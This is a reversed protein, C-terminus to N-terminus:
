NRGGIADALALARRAAKVDHVRLLNAGNRAAVVCAALTGELREQPELGLVRGIFSKRSPGIALPVGLSGLERLRRLIELNHEATKGFGIGPDAVMQGRPIGAAEGLRLSEALAAIIEAMLDRYRPNRQMTRPRGKMHMVICPAGARAAVPAMKEDARFGSVDNIMGAGERLAVEAVFASMTDVSVPVGLRGKLGRLVPVLRRLQEERSVGASGPRTSEAGIDIFDAGEDELRLAQEVARRADYYRGGDYFSDPTVNVVGMVHTRRGLDIRRRGISIVLRARESRRQLALLEPGLRAACEPQHRLRARIAALQRPTALLVADSRRVRGSAVRSHVACDGGAALATQKLINATACSLGNLKIALVGAKQRFIPWAASDVGVRDLEQELDRRSEVVLLRAPSETQSM